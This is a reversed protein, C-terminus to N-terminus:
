LGRLELEEIILKMLAGQIADKEMQQYKDILQDDNLRSNRRRHMDANRMIISDDSMRPQPAYFGSNNGTRLNGHSTHRHM